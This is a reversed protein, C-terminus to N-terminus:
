NYKLPGVELQFPPTCPLPPALTPVIKVPSRYDRRGRLDLPEATPGLGELFEVDDRGPADIGGSAM